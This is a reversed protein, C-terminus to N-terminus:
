MEMCETFDQKTNITMLRPRDPKGVLRFAVRPVGFGCEVEPCVPVYEVYRGLTDKLFHDLQHGGNYRVSQGLLCASIGLKIKETNEM